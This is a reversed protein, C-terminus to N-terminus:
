RIIGQIKRFENIISPNKVKAVFIIGKKTAFDNQTHIEYVAIPIPQSDERSTDMVLDIEVGFFNRYHNESM